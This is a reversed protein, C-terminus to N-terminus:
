DSISFAEKKDGKKDRFWKTCYDLIDEPKNKILGVMLRSYIPKVKRSFYDLAENEM